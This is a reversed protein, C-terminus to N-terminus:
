ITVRARAREFAMRTQLEACQEASLGAFVPGDRFLIRREEDFRAPDSYTGAPQVRSSAAFLGVHRRGSAAVRRLVEIEHERRM